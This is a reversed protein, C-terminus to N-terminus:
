CWCYDNSKPQLAPTKPQKSECHKSLNAQLQHHIHLESVKVTDPMHCHEITQIRYTKPGILLLYEIPLHEYERWRHKFKSESFVNETNLLIIGTCVIKIIAENTKVKPSFYFM